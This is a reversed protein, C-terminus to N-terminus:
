VWSAIFHLSEPARARGRRLRLSLFSLAPRNGCPTLLLKKKLDARNSFRGLFISELPGPLYELFAIHRDPGRRAIRLPM